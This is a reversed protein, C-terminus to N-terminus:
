QAAVTSGAAEVAFDKVDQPVKTFVIVYPIAGGPKVGMNSLSDGFQNNMVAAIRAVPLTALQEATLVNGCYAAQQALVGKPGYLVGKVQISARPKGYNNVVEGRVVFIEGAEANVLFSGEASKVSLSGEEEIEIGALRAIKGLGIRDVIAPGKLMILGGAAVVALLLAVVLTFGIISAISRGKRRSPISLPPLEEEAAFEEFTIKEPVKPEAEFFPATEIREPEEAPRSEVAEFSFGGPEIKEPEAPQPPPEVFFGSEEEAEEKEKEGEIEFTFEPIEEAPAPPAAPMKPEPEIATEEEIRFEEKEAVPEEPFAFEDKVPEDFTPGAEAGTSPGEEFTFEGFEFAKEEGTPAEEVPKEEAQPPPPVPEEFSFALEEGPTPAVAAAPPQPAEPEKAPAPRAPAELGGLLSELEAEEVPAEKMVVFIHRCKSCRVKVGEPKVKADDLRFKGGCQECRIIM